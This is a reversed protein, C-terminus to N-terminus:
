VPDRARPLTPRKIPLGTLGSTENTVASMRDEGLLPLDHAFSENVL